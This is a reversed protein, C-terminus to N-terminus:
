EHADQDVEELFSKLAELVRGLARKKDLRRMQQGVNAASRM